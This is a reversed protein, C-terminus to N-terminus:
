KLWRIIILCFFLLSSSYSQILLLVTISGTSPFLEHCLTFDCVWLCLCASLVMLLTYYLIHAQRIHICLYSLILIRWAVSCQEILQRPLLQLPSTTPPRCGKQRPPFQAHMRIGIKFYLDQLLFAYNIFEAWPFSIDKNSHSYSGSAKTVEILPRIGVLLVILVHHLLSWHLYAQPCVLLPLLPAFFIYLHFVFKCGQM